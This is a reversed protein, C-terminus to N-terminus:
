DVDNITCINRSITELNVKLDDKYSEWNTRKPNRYTGQDVTINSIQFCMYRRDSLSPEDSVHWNSVLNGINNTGLTLDTVEKRNFVMFTPENGHNLINLNSSVLFKMVSEGRPTTDTSGWLIHHVNADCGIILQKKRSCCYDTVDRMEKTPPTGDSDYPLYVSAIILERSGGRYPYTIRVATVDRSCLELLPLANVHNRIYVCSRANNHPVTSYVTGGTSTLGRVQGKYLWP